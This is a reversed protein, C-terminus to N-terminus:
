ELGVPYGKTIPQKIAFVLLKARIRASCSIPNDPDSLFDGPALVTFPNIDSLMLVVQDGAFANKVVQDLLRGGIEGLYAYTYNFITFIVIKDFM